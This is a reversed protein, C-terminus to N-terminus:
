KVVVLDVLFRVLTEKLFVLVVRVLLTPLDSAIEIGVMPGLAVLTVTVM